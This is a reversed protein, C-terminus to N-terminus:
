NVRAPDTLDLMLAPLDSSSGLYPAITIDVDPHNQRCETIAEPIDSAVHAGQALFYPLVMISKAGSEVLTDVGQQISPDALELFACDVREFRESSRSAVTKTLAQVEENAAARRSGHAVILLTKM